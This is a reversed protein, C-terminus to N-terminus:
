AATASSGALGASSRMGGSSTSATRTSRPARSRGPLPMWSRSSTRRSRRSPTRTWPLSCRGSGPRGVGTSSGSSPQWVRTGFVPPRRQLWIGGCAASARWCRPGCTQTSCGSSLALPCESYRRLWQLELGVVNVAFLFAKESVHDSAVRSLRLRDPAVTPLLLGGRYCADEDGLGAFVAKLYGCGRSLSNKLVWSRCGSQSKLTTVCKGHEQMVPDVISCLMGWLARLPLNAHVCTAMHMVNHCQRRLPDLGQNSLAVPVRAETRVPAPDTSSSAPRSSATAKPRSGRAPRSTETAVLAGTVDAEEGDTFWGEIRGVYVLVMEVAAWFPLHQQTKDFLQFWRGLKPRYTMNVLPKSLMTWKWVAKADDPHGYMGTSKGGNMALHLRPYFHQFLDCTHDFNAELEERAESMTQFWAASDFPGHAMTQALMVELKAWSLGAASLAALCNNNRRHHPDCEFSGRVAGRDCDYCAPKSNWGITGMDTVEHLSPRPMGWCVELRVQKSSQSQIAARRKRGVSVAQLAPPLDQVDLFVREADAALPRCPDAAKFHKLGPSGVFAQLFSDTALVVHKNSLRAQKLSKPANKVIGKRRSWLESM